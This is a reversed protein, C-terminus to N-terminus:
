KYHEDANKKYYWVKSAGMSDAGKKEVVFLVCSLHYYNNM